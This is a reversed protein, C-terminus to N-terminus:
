TEKASETIHASWRPDRGDLVAQVKAAQENTLTTQQVSGGFNRFEEAVREPDVTHLLALIASDRPQITEGVTKVFSEPIGLEKKWRKADLAGATAGIAADTLASAAVAGALAAGSVGATFPIAVTLGILMGWIAGLGAEQGTTMQYSEDVRLKGTHDRYIAVADQLDVVWDENMASLKHLVEGARFIDGRFAVVVLQAM